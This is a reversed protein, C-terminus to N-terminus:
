TRANSRMRRTWERLAQKQRLAYDPNTKKLNLVRANACLRCVRDGRVNLKLNEGSLPHGKSCETKRSNRAAFTNGRLINERHTVAELHDPNVCSPNRCLHDVDFGDPITGKAWEYSFRHAMAGHRKGRRFQGYGVGNMAAIWVWCTETKNVKQWFAQQTELETHPAM